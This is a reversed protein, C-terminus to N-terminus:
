VPSWLLLRRGRKLLSPHDSTDGLIKIVVQNGLTHLATGLEINYTVIGECSPKSFRNFTRQFLNFSPTRIMIIAYACVAHEGAHLYLFSMLHLRTVLISVLPSIKLCYVCLQLPDDDSDYRSQHGQYAQM